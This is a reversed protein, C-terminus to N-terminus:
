VTECKLRDHSQYKSSHNANNVLYEEPLNLLTKRYWLITIISHSITTICYQNNTARIRDANAERDYNEHLHKNLVAEQFKCDKTM